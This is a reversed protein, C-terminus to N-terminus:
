GSKRISLMLRLGLYIFAADIALEAVLYFWFLGANSITSGPLFVDLLWIVLYAVAAILLALAVPRTQSREKDNSIRRYRYNQMILGFAFIVVWIFDVWSGPLFNSNLQTVYYLITWVGVPILIWRIWRPVFEGNPFIFLLFGALFFGIVRLLSYLWVLNARTFGKFLVSVANLSVPLLLLVFAGLIFAVHAPQRLLLMGALVAFGLGVLLSLTVLYATLGNPTLGADSLVKQTDSSLTLTYDKVSGDAKRVTITMSEGIRGHVQLTPDVARNVPKGNIDLLVDFNQVGAKEAELGPKPYLIVQGASNRLMSIDLTGLTHSDIEPSLGYALLFVTLALLLGFLIGVILPWPKDLRYKHVPQPKAYRKAM